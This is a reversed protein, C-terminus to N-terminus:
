HTVPCISVPPQTATPLKKSWWNVTKTHGFCVTQNLFDSFKRALRNKQTWRHGLKYGQMWSCVPAVEPAVGCLIINKKFTAGGGGSGFGFVIRQFISLIV